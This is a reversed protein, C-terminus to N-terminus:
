TDTDTGGQSRQTVPVAMEMKETARNEGFIYAALVRFATNGVEDFDESVATEAMLHPTYRRLEFDPCTRVVEYEPEEIATVNAGASM